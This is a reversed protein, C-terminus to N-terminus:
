SAHGTLLKLQKQMKKRAGESLTGTDTAMLEAALSNISQALKDRQERFQLMLRRDFDLRLTEGNSEGAPNAM